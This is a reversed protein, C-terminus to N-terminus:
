EEKALAMFDEASMSYTRQEEEVNLILVTEDGSRRRISRTAREPTYRGILTADYDEYERSTKNYRQGTCRSLTFRRTVTSKM